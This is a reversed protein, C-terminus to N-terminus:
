KEGDIFNKYDLLFISDYHLPFKIGTYAYADWLTTNVLSMDEKQLLVRKLKAKKKYVRDKM